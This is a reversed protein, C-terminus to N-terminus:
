PRPRRSSLPIEVDYFVEALVVGAQTALQEELRAIEARSNAITNPATPIIARQPFGQPSEPWIREGTASDVLKIHMMAEPRPHDSGRDVSFDSIAVYIVIDAGVARGIEDIPMPDTASGRSAMAMASRTDIMEGEAVLKKRLLLEQATSGIMARYRRRTVRSAPDDIFVVYSREIDLDTAAEVEGPGAVAFYVPAVVNCGGSLLSSLLLLLGFAAVCALRM